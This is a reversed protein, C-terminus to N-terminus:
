MPCSWPLWRPSFSCDDSLWPKGDAGGIIRGCPEWCRKCWLVSNLLLRQVCTQAVVGARVLRVLLTRIQVIYSAQLELQLEKCCATLHWLRLLTAGPYKLVFADGATHQLGPMGVALGAASVVVASPLLLGQWAATCLQCYCTLKACSEAYVISCLAVQGNLQRLDELVAALYFECTASM